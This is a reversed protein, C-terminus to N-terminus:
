AAQPLAADRVKWEHIEGCAPCRARLTESKIRLLTGIETTSASMSPAGPRPASSTCANWRPRRPPPARESLTLKHLPGRNRVSRTSAVGDPGQTLPVDAAKLRAIAADREGADAAEIAFWALGARNDDRKGAGASHWVNSGVHHHYRGSSMFLAGGRGATPNLGVVDCYFKQTPALDGVRLHIHGIRLGDPAGAYATNGDDDALKDLDLRDTAMQIRDGTWRWEEPLRDRYVEIGNGEPDDLYIAESVLHDSAGSLQVRNRAAHVLWRALDARTPQLFATHYLGATRPDDPLAGPAAELELLTVGGAGLRASKADSTSCM